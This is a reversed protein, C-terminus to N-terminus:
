SFSVHVFSQSETNLFNTELEVKKSGESSNNRSIFPSSKHLSSKDKILALSNSVASVEYRSM